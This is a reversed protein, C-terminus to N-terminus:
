FGINALNQLIDSSYANRSAFVFNIEQVPDVYVNGLIDRHANFSSPSIYIAYETPDESLYDINFRKGSELATCARFWTRLAEITKVPEPM